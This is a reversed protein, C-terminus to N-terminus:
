QATVNVDDIWLNEGSDISTGEFKIRFNSRMYQSDTITVTYHNWTDETSNGLEYYNNYASGNYLQLYINDDNDIDDDRFWFDITISTKGTTNLNDSILDNDSSGAHASYSGSHKQNTARDWDTTGGDTWKDFNTEFGDQLLVVPASATTTFSWVEGTTTGGSNKEDIRWYYITNSSLTEPPDYSTGTQEGRYTGPSSTGFYVLHSTAGSGATWSININLDVNTAGDVPNPNTAKGPPPPPPAATTFSWVEGTIISVADHEDIRWYYTTSYSLIGPDFTTGTQNGKFEDLGPSPNTGFYVDHSIAGYGATWSLDADISVGTALDAPTPNSAEIHVVKVVLGILPQRGTSTSHTVSPIEEAGTASKYGSVGDFNTRSLDIAKVFGNNTTYTGTNSCTAADIVMDGDSNALASTTITAGSSIANSATAGTLSSQNVNQLFVSEYATGYYPTASWSPSFTTSSAATIGADNLIFAAVYTRTTGSSVIRDIVKTMTQGGYTVSNLTVSGTHEAHAIFVLARNSGSEKTHTTGAVWAGKISVEPLEAPPTYIATYNQEVIDSTVNTYSLSNPEFICYSKKPWITGSWNNPVPVEYYGNADTANSGGDTEASLYVGEIPADNSDLVYGCVVPATSPLMIITDDLVFNLGTDSGPSLHNVDRYVRVTAFDESVNVDIFELGNWQLSSPLNDAPTPGATVGGPEWGANGMSIQWVRGYFGSFNPDQTRWSNHEPYWYTHAPYDPAQGGGGLHKFYYHTHGVFVATVKESELLSWFADRNGPYNDLSDGYHHNYPFAPEHVFIFTFPKNTDALDDELWDLLQPTIDGSDDGHSLGNDSDDDPDDSEGNWYCNLVIFHANTYDWSYTTEVSGDPGPNTPPFIDHLPTRGSNNGNNYENRLWVMDTSPSEADHNGVVGFWPFNSGFNADILARNSPNTAAYDIDGVSVHFAGPGNVERNIAQLTRSFYVGSEVANSGGRQDSTITFHFSEAYAPANLM